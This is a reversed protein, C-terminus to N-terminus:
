WGACVHGRGQGARGRERGCCVVLCRSVGGGDLWEFAQSLPEKGRWPRVPGLVRGKRTAGLRRMLASFPPLVMAATRAVRKVMESPVAVAGEGTEDPAHLEPGQGALEGAQENGMVYRASSGDQM